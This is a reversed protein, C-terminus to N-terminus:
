FIKRQSRHNWGTSDAAGASLTRGDKCVPLRPFRDRRAKRIAYGIRAIAAWQDGLENRM